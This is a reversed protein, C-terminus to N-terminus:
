FSAEPINTESAFDYFLRNPADGETFFYWKGHGAHFVYPFYNKGTFIWDLALDYTWFAEPREGTVYWWGQSFSFCWPYFGDFVFGMWTNKIQPLANAEYRYLSGEPSQGALPDIIETQAPLGPHTSTVLLRYIKQPTQASDPVTVKELLGEATVTPTGELVAWSAPNYPDSTGEVRYDLHARAANKLRYYYVSGLDPWNLATFPDSVVLPDAAFSLEALNNLGDNDPDADWDALLPNELEALTFHTLRWSGRTISQTATYIADALDPYDVFPNRNGQKYSRVGWTAGTHVQHNRRREYEDPPFLRNWELLTTLKGMTKVSQSPNDSLKFDGSPTRGDFRVDMYFLARAIRGKDADRPEWASNNYLCEPADVGGSTGGPVWDFYKNSRLSNVSGKAPYLHHVDSYAPYTTDDFGSYDDAGYSQPWVHERNWANAATGFSGKPLAFGSYLLMIDDPNGPHTDLARQFEDVSDYKYVTVGTGIVNALESKLTAGSASKVSAYYSAPPSWEDAALPSLPGLAPGMVGLFGLIAVPRLSPLHVVTSM